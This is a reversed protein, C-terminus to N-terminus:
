QEEPLPKWPPRVLPHQRAWTDLNTGVHEVVRFGKKSRYGGGHPYDEVDSPDVPEVRYVNGFLVHQGDVSAQGEGFIDGEARDQAYHAATHPRYGAYAHAMLRPAIIDGVQYDRHTGHFMPGFQQPSLNDSAAM